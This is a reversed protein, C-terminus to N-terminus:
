EVGNQLAEWTLAYRFTGGTKGDPKTVSVSLFIGNADLAAVFDRPADRLFVAEAEVAKAVGDEVLWALAEEAYEKARALVDPTPRERALLWLKSGIGPDGEPNFADGWWGRRDTQGEPLEEGTVQRDCFLSLVVASELGSELTLDNRATVLEVGVGPRLIKLDAM